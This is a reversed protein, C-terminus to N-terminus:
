ESELPILIGLGSQVIPAAPSKPPYKAGSFCLLSEARDSEPERELFSQAANSRLSFARRSQMTFCM